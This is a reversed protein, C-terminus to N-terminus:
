RDIGFGDSPDVMAVPATESRGAELIRSAAACWRDREGFGVPRRGIRSLLSDGPDLLSIRGEDQTAAPPERLPQVMVPSVPLSVLEDARESWRTAADRQATAMRTLEARESRRWIPAEDRQALLAAERTAAEAAAARAAEADRAVREAARDDMVEHAMRKRHSQHLLGVLDDALHDPEPELGPLAREASGPSVLYFRAEERHRSLATYGWERYLEDSGLVFARDVTAGQAAHATLAYGHELHQADLYAADVTVETDPSTRLTLSSHELDVAVVDARTGNVIGLRRDNRKAVVRDGVAFARHGIVLQEDALRGDRHMRDRALRNLEGVDVRRHAIMIADSSGARSAEWWDDVLATRVGEATARAVIRGHDRYAEAWDSIRGERLSGLAQRDWAQVQRRVTQLEVAGLRGAISRFGGGADLEPLQRDDGVLLLKSETQAAHEALDLLARSGVMGAEDVVLVSRPPLGYGHAIDRQLRAITCSDIGALTELEVAARAALAVGYVRTGNQEWLDRAAALAFTKGTGAAARVVQVGDGSTTIETVLRSQEESLSPRREVAREVTAADVTAVGGSQQTVALDVVRREVELMEPTSYRAGGLHPRHEGGELRVAEPSRMWADTLREISEVSAGERHAAAWERIADRRDFTSSQRTVGYRSAVRDAIDERPPNQPLGPVRRDLVEQLEDRGLGHESARARWQERMAAVPVDYTKARRTELAALQASQASRGGVRKMHEVIEERRRSFEARLEPSIGSIEAVGNEVPSWEVGVTRTLQDRLAAQYLFGATRAHAYLARGDLTTAKGEATVENVLVSHTHLQPDGARSARHRFTAITLADAQVHRHGNEGRRTWAAHREMYGLAQTVAEDHADRVARSVDPDAVGYLISVSKPASFALDFGLLSRASTVPPTLATIFADEEVAGDLGRDRAGRGAWQGPAEGHGTYYDEHGKAVSEIYYRPDGDGGGVKGISLM